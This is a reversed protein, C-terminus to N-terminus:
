TAAEADAPPRSRGERLMTELMEGATEDVDITVADVRDIFYNYFWVSVIAVALGVATTLLAESIGISVTALGGGGGKSPDGMSQFATIIGFVTGFLGVFPASSSITALVSLGRKMNALERAKVRNMSRGVGDVMMELELPDSAKPGLGRLGRLFEKVGNGIVSAVPSGKWRQDLGLVDELRNDGVMQQLAGVYGVSQRQGRRLALWRDVSVGISYVSMVLLMVVVSKAIMGMQQWMHYISFDM